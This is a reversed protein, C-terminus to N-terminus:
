GKMCTGVYRKARCSKRGEKLLRWLSQTFQTAVISAALVKLFGTECNMVTSKCAKPLAQMTPHIKPFNRPASIM